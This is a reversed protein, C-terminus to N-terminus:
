KISRDIWRELAAALTYDDIFDWSGEVFMQNGAHHDYMYYDMFAGNDAEDLWDNFNSGDSHDLWSLWQIDKILGDGKGYILKIYNAAKKIQEKTLPAMKAVPTPKVKIEYDIESGHKTTNLHPVRNGLSTGEMKPMQDFPLKLAKFEKIGAWVKDIAVQDDLDAGATEKKVRNDIDVVSQEFKAVHPHWKDVWNEVRKIAIDINGLPDNGLKNDIVLHISIDSGNIEETELAQANLWNDNLYYKDLAKVLEDIAKQGEPGYQRKDHMGVYQGPKKDTGKVGHSDKGTLANKVNRLLDVFGETSVSAESIGQSIVLQKLLEGASELVGSNANHFAALREVLEVTEKFLGDEVMPQVVEADVSEMASRVASKGDEMLEKLNLKAM